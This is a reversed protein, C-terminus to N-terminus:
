VFNNREQHNNAAEVITCDREPDLGAEQLALKQSLYGGASTKGVIMVKKGQLDAISKIDSNPSTIIIGRFKNGDAGM